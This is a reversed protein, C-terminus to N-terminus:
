RAFVVAHSKQPLGVSHPYAGTLNNSYLVLRGVHGQANASVGYWDNLPKDSLWDTNKTWSAGNTANYLAVLQERDSCVPVKNKVLLDYVNGEPFGAPVCVDTGKLDLHTLNKRYGFAIPIPGELSSDSLDLYTLDSLNGLGEPIRGELWSDSLDLHTLKTLNGLELPIPGSLLNNSLDLYTLNTLTGVVESIPGEIKNHSLDLHTLNSLNGLDPHITFEGQFNGLKNNSLDLHYLNTLNGLYSLFPIKRDLNRILQNHSLDLYRLNTLTGLAPPIYWTLHNKSLDLYVLNTLHTINVFYSSGLLGEPGTINNTHLILRVVRDEENADKNTTVGHWENLAKETDGWNQSRNWTGFKQTVTYFKTLAVRDSGVEFELYVPELKEWKSYNFILLSAGVFRLARVEIRTKGSGIGKLQAKDYDYEAVNSKVAKVPEFVAVDIGVKQLLSLIVDDVVSPIVAKLMNLVTLHYLSMDLPVNDLALNSSIGGTINDLTTLGVSSLIGAVFSAIEGAADDPVKFKTKIYNELIKELGHGVLGSGPGSVQDSETAFDGYFTMGSTGGVPVLTREIEVELSQLDTPIFSNIATQAVGLVTSIAGITVGVPQGGPVLVAIVAGPSLLANANGLLFSVADMQFLVHHKLFRSDAVVKSASLDVKGLGELIELAGSNDLLHTLLAADEPPLAAIREGIIGWAANLKAMEQNFLAADAGSSILGADTM